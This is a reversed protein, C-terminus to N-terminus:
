THLRVSTAIKLAAGVQAVMREPFRIVDAATFRLITWGLLRLRNLRTADYRFTEQERHHDGDYELGIRLREYALDLRAVFLGDSDLVTHQVTPEPLGAGVLLLRMRTEMPSEVHPRALRAATRFRDVGPWGARLRAIESPEAPRIVRQYLLADDAWFLGRASWGRFRVEAGRPRAHEDLALDIVQCANPYSHGEDGEYLCGTALVLLQHDPGQLMDATPEHQHGHLLLDVRDALLRRADAADALDALRHHMLALRFGPLPAGRETTTLLSVQHETLRLTGGDDDDGALWATDLGIVQIPESLGPLTVAHRYGLRQHPSHRPLIEPRGLETAIAGWFAQQRELIKDRRANRRLERPGLGAMWESYARPDDGIHDRVWRWAAVQAKRDIDHNGPIVFLRDLPVDLAACTERLFALASPYDTPHGWDGLDGTFVVLDFPVGDNRLEALNATWTEGLVRWRFAAELRAREAQPGEVSRMHLDSIHLVRVGRGGV